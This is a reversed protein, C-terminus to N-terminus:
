FLTMYEITLNVLRHKIGPEDPMPQAFPEGRKVWITGSDCKLTVGGFGIAESLQACLGNAVAESETQFYANLQCVQEGEAWAGYTLSYTMYPFEADTPVATAPYAAMFGNLWQHITAQKNM